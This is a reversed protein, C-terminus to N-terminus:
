GPEGSGTPSDSEGQEGSGTPSDSEGQEGSGTPSDNESPSPCDVLDLDCRSWYLAGGISSSILCFCAFVLVIVLGKNM